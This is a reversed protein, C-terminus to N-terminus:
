PGLASPAGARSPRNKRRDGDMNPILALVPLSLVRLVDDECAFTSDRYELFGLLLLALALGAIPGGVLLGLRQNQNHPREPLSASDLIRFQEGIQRRQLNAAVASDQPQSELFRSDEALSESDRLNEEIYSSVLRETVKRATTPDSSIYTVRFSSANGVLTVGIDSRMRQVVSQTTGTRRQERYLDFDHIIKELRVRSQIQETVTRLRDEVSATVTSKVSSDPIRQPIVM